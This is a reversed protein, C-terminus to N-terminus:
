PIIKSAAIRRLSSILLLLFVAALFPYIVGAIQYYTGADPGDFVHCLGRDNRSICDRWRWYREYFLVLAGGFLVAWIGSVLWPWLRRM